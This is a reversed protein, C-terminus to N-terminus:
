IAGVKRFEEIERPRYGLLDEYIVENAIGVPLGPFRIRGSYGPMKFPVNPLRMTLGTVPDEIEIFSRRDGYHPDNAIDEMTAIPGVTVGLRDCIALIEELDKSGIWDSIVRNIIQRNEDKVREANTKFRPDTKMEPHGVAEM